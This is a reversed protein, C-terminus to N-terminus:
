RSTTRTTPAKTTNSFDLQCGAKGQTPYLHYSGGWSSLLIGHLESLNVVAGGEAVQKDALVQAERLLHDLGAVDCVLSTLRVVGSEIMGVKADTAHLALGIEVLDGGLEVVGADAIADETLCVAVVFASREHSGGDKAVLAPQEPAIAAQAAVPFIRM